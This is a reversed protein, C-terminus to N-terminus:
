VKGIPRSRARTRTKVDGGNNGSSRKAPTVCAARSDLAFHYASPPSSSAALYTFEPRVAEANCHMEVVTVAKQEDNSYALTVDTDVGSKTRYTVTNQLGISRATFTSTILECSASDQCTVGGYTITINSCPNYYFATVVGAPSTSDAHFPANPNDLDHFDFRGSGDELSCTCDDVRDCSVHPSYCGDPCACVSRMELLLVSATPEGVITLRPFHRQSPDCILTIDTRRSGDRSRYGLSVSGNEVTYEATAPSGYDKYAGAEQVCVTVDRCEGGGGTVNIGTCPNMTVTLTSSKAVLPAKPQNLEEINILGGDTMRCACSKEGEAVCASEAQKCGGLCACKSKLTFAYSGNTSENFFQFEPTEASMDCVLYIFTERTVERPITKSGLYKIYRVSSSDEHFTSTNQLGLNYYFADAFRQDEQCLAVNKCEQIKGEGENDFPFCPNFQFTFNRSAVHTSLAATGDKRALEGLSLIQGTASDRCSCSDVRICESRVTSVATLLLLFVAGVALHNRAPHQM